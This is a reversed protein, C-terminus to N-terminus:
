EKGFYRKSYVVLGLAVLLPVAVLGVLRYHYLPTLKNIFDMEYAPLSMLLTIDYFNYRSFSLVASITLASVYILGGWWAWRKLRV